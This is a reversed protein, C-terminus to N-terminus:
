SDDDVEKLPKPLQNVPVIVQANAEREWPAMDEPRLFLETHGHCANCSSNRPTRRQLNHPASPRWTSRRDFRSLANPTYADFLEPTSPAHRLVVFDQPRAPSKIPNRGIKFLIRTDDCKFYPLGKEDTGVHCIFCNKNAQAHCAQCALDDAHQAHFRNRSRGAVTKQHCNRCTPLNPANFRNSAAGGDAHIELSTHCSTCNMEAASFHVDAVAGEGLGTYEGFVRGGHCAACVREMAPRTFTHGSLLGGGVYDPRSVHCQGCSSHCTGCHRSQAQQLVKMTGPQDISARATVANFIPALTFHLSQGASRAIEEHCQGCVPEPDPFTPDDINKSHATQWNDDRPDGGHCNQCPIAGHDGNLFDKKVYIKEYLELPAL